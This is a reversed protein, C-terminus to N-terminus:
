NNTYCYNWKFDSFQGLLDLLQDTPIAEHPYIHHVEFGGRAFGCEQRWNLEAYLHHSQCKDCICTEGAGQWNSTKWNAIRKTCAPCKPNVTQTFGLCEAHETPTIFSIYCHQEGAVPVLNINPSCGLFTILSLFKDGLLYHNKKPNDMLLFDATVLTNILAKQNFTKTIKDAFFILKSTTM